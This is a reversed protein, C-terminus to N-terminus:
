GVLLLGKCNSTVGDTPQSVTQSMPSILTHAVASGGHEKKATAPYVDHTPLARIKLIKNM